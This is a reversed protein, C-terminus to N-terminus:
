HFQLNKVMQGGRTGVALVCQQDEHPSLKVQVSSSRRGGVRMKSDQWSAM